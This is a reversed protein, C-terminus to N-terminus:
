LNFRKDKIEQLVKQIFSKKLATYKKRDDSYEVSLGEKLKLYKKAIKKNKNLYDRFNINNKWNVGDYKEAHLHVKIFNQGGKVFLFRYRKSYEPIHRYDAKKLPSIIKNFDKVSRIGLAIDIIPKAKIGRISTSGIHQIDVILDKPLVKLIKKKEKKFFDVWEKKYSVLKVKGRELGIFFKAM